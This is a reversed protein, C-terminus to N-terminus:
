HWSTVDKRPDPKWGCQEAVEHLESLEDRMEDMWQVGVLTDGKLVAILFDDSQDLEYVGRRICRTLTNYRESDPYYVTSFGADPNGVIRPMIVTYERKM